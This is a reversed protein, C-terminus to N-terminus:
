RWHSIAREVPHRLIVLIKINKEYLKHVREAAYPEFLYGPTADLSVHGPPLDREFHREYFQRGQAFSSNTDFFHVEKTHYVPEGPLVRAMHVFPHRHLADALATTGSKMAGILFVPPPLRPYPHNFQADIFALLLLTAGLCCLVALARARRSTMGWVFLTLRFARRQSVPQETHGQALAAACEILVILSADFCTMCCLKNRVVMQQTANSEARTRLNQLSWVLAYLSLACLLSM